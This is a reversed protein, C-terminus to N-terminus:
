ICRAIIAAYEGIVGLGAAAAACWGRPWNDDGKECDRYVAFPTAILGGVCLTCAAVCFKTSRLITGIM